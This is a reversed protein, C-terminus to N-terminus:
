HYPPQPWPNNPICGCTQGTSGIVGCHETPQCGGSPCPATSSACSTSQGVAPLPYRALMVGLVIGVFFIGLMKSVSKRKVAKKM